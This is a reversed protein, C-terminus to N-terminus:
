GIGLMILIPTITLPSLLTTVVVASTVVAPEADFEISLIMALVATPTAAELVSVQAPLMDFGVALSLLWALAPAVILQLIAV